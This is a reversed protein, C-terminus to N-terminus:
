FTGREARGSEPLLSWGANESWMGQTTTRLLAADSHSLDHSSVRKTPELDVDFAMGTM